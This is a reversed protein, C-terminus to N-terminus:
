KWNIKIYIFKDFLYILRGTRDFLYLTDGELIQLGDVTLSYKAREFNRHKIINKNFELASLVGLKYKKPLPTILKITDGNESSELVKFNSKYMFKSLGSNEDKISYVINGATVTKEKSMLAVFDEKNNFERLIKYDRKTEEQNDEDEDYDEDDDDEDDDDDDDDFVVNEDEFKVTAHHAQLMDVDDEDYDEDEEMFDDIFLDDEIDYEYDENIKEKISHILMILKNKLKFFLDTIKSVKKIEFLALGFEDIDDEDNAFAEYYEDEDECEFGFESPAYSKVISKAYKYYKVGVVKYYLLEGEDEDCYRFIDGRKIKKSLARCLRLEYKKIGEKLYDMVEEYTAQQSIQNQQLLPQQPM